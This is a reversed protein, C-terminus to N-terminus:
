QIIFFKMQFRFISVDVKLYPLIFVQSPPSEKPTYRYFEEENKYWKVSYLAVSELDYDCLLPASSGAQVVEPITLSMNRLAFVGSVFVSPSCTFCRM